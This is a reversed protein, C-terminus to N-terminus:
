NEMPHKDAPDIVPMEIYTTVSFSSPPTVRAHQIVLVISSFYCARPFTDLTTTPATVIPFIM